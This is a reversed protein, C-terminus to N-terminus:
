PSSSPCFAASCPVVIKSFWEPMFAVFLIGLLIAAILKPILGIKLRRKEM